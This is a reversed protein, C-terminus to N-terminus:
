RGNHEDWDSGPPEGSLVECGAELWREALKDKARRGADNADGYIVLTEIGAVVPLEALNGANLASWVHEVRGHDRLFSTMISLAKEIGEAVALRRTVEADDTLRVIGGRTSYGALTRKNPTIPAKGYGNPLLDTFHLTLVRSADAFDTVLAVMSPWPYKPTAPAYRLVDSSPAILEGRSKLYREVPTGEIPAFKDFLWRPKDPNLLQRQPQQPRKPTFHAPQHDRWADDNLGRQRLAALIDRANCGTYCYVLLRGDKSDRVALSPDHDDHAPCRCLWQDGVKKGGLAKAITEANM